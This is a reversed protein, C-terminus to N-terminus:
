LNPIVGKYIKWNSGIKELYGTISGSNEEVYSGATFIYSFYGYVTAYNGNIVVNNINENINLTTTGYGFEWNNILDELDGIENYAESGYICYSRAENWNKSNLASILKSCVSRIKDEDSETVVINISESDEGGKGDSVTCTITYTGATSPAIWTITSGSGTITGGNKTWSYTLANGDQDSASCTITTTQNIDVSSPNPNLSSIVPPHNDTSEEDEYIDAITDWVANCDPSDYPPLCPDGALETVVTMIGGEQSSIWTFANGLFQFLATVMDTNSEQTPPQFGPVSPLLDDFSIFNWSLSDYFINFPSIKPQSHFSDHSKIIALLDKIALLDGPNVDITNPGVILNENSDYFAVDVTSNTYNEFTIKNGKYDIIYTPLGDIGAEIYFEYGLESVYITGTVKTPDGQNNKEGLIVITEENEGGSIIVINSEPDKVQILVFDDSSEPEPIPTQSCEEESATECGFNILNFEYENTFGEGSINFQITGCCPFDVDTLPSVWPLTGVLLGTPLEDLSANPRIVPNGTGGEMPLKGGDIYMTWNGWTSPFPDLTIEIVKTNSDWFMDTIRINGEEDVPPIIPNGGCSVMIILMCLILFLLIAKKLM